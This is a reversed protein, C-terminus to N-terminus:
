ALAGSSPPKGKQPHPIMRKVIFANIGKEFDFVKIKGELLIDEYDERANIIHQAVQFNNTCLTITNSSKDYLLKTNRTHFRAKFITENNCDKTIGIRSVRGGLMISKTVFM